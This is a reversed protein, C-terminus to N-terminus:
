LNSWNITKKKKNSDYIRFHVQRYVTLNEHGKICRSVTFGSYLHRTIHYLQPAYFALAIKQCSMFYELFGRYKDEEKRNCFIRSLGKPLKSDVAKKTNKLHCGHCLGHLCDQVAQNEDLIEGKIARIMEVENERCITILITLPLEDVRIVDKHYKKLPLIRKITETPNLRINSSLFDSQNM